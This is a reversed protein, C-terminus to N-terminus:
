FGEFLPFVLEYVKITEFDYEETCFKCTIMVKHKTFKAYLSDSITIRYKQRGDDEYREPLLANLAYLAGLVKTFNHSDLGASVENRRKIASTNVDMLRSEM